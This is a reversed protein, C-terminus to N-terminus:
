LAATPWNGAPRCGSGSLECALPTGSSECGARVNQVATLIRPPM